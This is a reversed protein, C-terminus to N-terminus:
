KTKKGRGRSRGWIPATEGTFNMNKRGKKQAWKPSLEWAEEETINGAKIGANIDKMSPTRGSKRGSSKKTGGAPTFQQGQAQPNQPAPANEWDYKFGGKGDASVSKWTRGDSTNSTVNKLHKEARKVDKDKGEQERSWDREKMVDQNHYFEASRGGGTSASASASSSSSGGKDGGGFFMTGAFTNWFKNVAANGGGRKAYTDAASGEVDATPKTHPFTAM